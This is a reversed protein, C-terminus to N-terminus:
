TKITCIALYKGRLGEATYLYEYGPWEVNKARIKVHMGDTINSLKLSNGDVDCFAHPGTENFLANEPDHLRAADACNILGHCSKEPDSIYRNRKM